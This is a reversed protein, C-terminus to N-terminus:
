FGGTPNFSTLNWTTGGTQYVLVAVGGSTMTIRSGSQLFTIGSGNILTVSSGICELAIQQNQTGPPLQPNIAMIQNANSGTIYVIPENNWAIASSSNVYVILKQSEIPILFADSPNTQGSNQRPDGSIDGEGGLSKKSPPPMDYSTPSVKLGNDKLPRGSERSYANPLETIPQFGYQLGSRDDEWWRFRESDRDRRKPM